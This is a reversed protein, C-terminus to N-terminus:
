RIEALARRQPCRSNAVSQFQALNLRPTKWFGLQKHWLHTRRLNGM